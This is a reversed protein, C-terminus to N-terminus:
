KMSNRRLEDIISILWDYPANHLGSPVENTYEAAGLTLRHQEQAKGTIWQSGAGVAICLTRHNPYVYEVYM